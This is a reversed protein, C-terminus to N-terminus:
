ALVEELGTRLLRAFHSDPTQALTTRAGHEVIAGQDLILIDDARQVTGLRHAIIVATRNTLLRDIAREMLRETAPDLRASAEDLVILGPNALFIRALALLQAEGASLGNNSLQTDLGNPLGRLWTELGLENLAAHVAQDSIQPNFLTLNDRLSAHFLQVDQTVMGVRQRLSDLTAHRLDVNGLQVSGDQPDYLRLLLRALTTKGSGTRGLLGLVRGAALDLSIENLVPQDNTAPESNGMDDQYRFRVANLTVALPGTPLTQEGSIITPRISLLEEIRIVSASAKQLDSLQTRLQDLPRRLLETYNVILYVTGISIEGLSWLWGGIGLAAALGCAYLFVSSAYLHYGSFSAPRFVRFSAELLTDFRRMVYSTAGNGRVDETGEVQEGLFGYFEASRQSSLTHLAVSRRTLVILTVATIVFFGALALSIRWDEYALLVLVGITLLLNVFLQLAFQSFFNSLATVDVDVREILEGPTRLKHFGMDLSLCHRSLDERLTNTATWALNQGIYTIGLALVQIVMAIGIFGLALVWLEDIPAGALTQDIFRAIVQPGVLELGVQVLLLFGLLAVQSLHPRLYTTLLRFPQRSDRMIM